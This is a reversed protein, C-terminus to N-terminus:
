NKSSRKILDLIEDVKEQAAKSSGSSVAGLLCHHAHNELIELELSKLASRAAKIQTLIDVCYQEEEIM